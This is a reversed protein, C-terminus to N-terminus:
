RGVSGDLREEFDGLSIILRRFWRRAPYSRALGLTLCRLRLDDLVAYFATFSKELDSLAVARRHRTNQAGVAQTVRMHNFRSGGQANRSDLDLEDDDDIKTILGLWNKARGPRM